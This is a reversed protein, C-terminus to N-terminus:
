WDGWFDVFLVKGKYDSLKFATGDLDIGEIDPVVMGMSFKEKVDIMQSVQRTLSGDDIGEMAARLEKKAAEYAESGVDSNDLTDSLRAFVAWARVAGKGNKEVKACLAKAKDESFYRGLDPLMRAMGAFEKANVHNDILTVLAQKGADKDAGMGARGALWALFPVADDTGAYDAAGAQFMPVYEKYPSTFAEAPLKEDAEKAAKQKARLDTRWASYAEDVEDKLAEYRDSATAGDDQATLAWGAIPLACALALLMNILQKM